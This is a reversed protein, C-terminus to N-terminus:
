RPHKQLGVPKSFYERSVPICISYHPSEGGSVNWEKEGSKEEYVKKAKGTEKRQERKRVSEYLKRVGKKKNKGNEKKKSEKERTLLQEFVCVSEGEKRKEAWTQSVIGRCSNVEALQSVCCWSARDDEMWWPHPQPHQILSPSPPSQTPSSLLHRSPLLPSPPLSLPTSLTNSPPFSSFNPPSYIPSLSISVFVNGERERTQPIGSPPPTLASSSLYPSVSINGGGRLFGGSGRMHPFTANYPPFCSWM